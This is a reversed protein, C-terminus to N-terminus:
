DQRADLKRRIAAIMRSIEDVEQLMPAVAAPEAYGLTECLRLLTDVEMLSGRSIALFRSYDKRSARGFGEAINTPVSVSARGVQSTLGYQETRPFKATMRYVSAALAMSRQWILLDRHSQIVAM